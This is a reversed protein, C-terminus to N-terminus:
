GFHRYTLANFEKLFAEFNYVSTKRIYICSVGEFASYAAINFLWFSDYSISPNNRQYIFMNLKSVVDSYINQAIM